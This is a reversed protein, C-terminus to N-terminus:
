TSKYKESLGNNNKDDFRQFTIKYQSTTTIPIKVVHHKSLDSIM